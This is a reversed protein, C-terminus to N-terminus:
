KVKLFETGMREAEKQPLTPFWSGLTRPVARWIAPYGMWSENESELTPFWWGWSAALEATPGLGWDRLGLGGEGCGGGFGVGVSFQVRGADRLM